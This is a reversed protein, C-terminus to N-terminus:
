GFKATYVNDNVLDVGPNNGAMLNAFLTIGRLIYKDESIAIAPIYDSGRVIRTRIAIRFWM